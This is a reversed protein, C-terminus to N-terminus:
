ASPIRAHPTSMSLAAGHIDSEDWFTRVNQVFDSM